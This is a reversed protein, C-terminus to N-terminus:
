MNRAEALAAALEADVAVESPAQPTNGAAINFVNAVATRLNSKLQEKQVADAVSSAEVIATYVTDSIEKADASSVGAKNKTAIIFASFNETPLASDNDRLTTNGPKVVVEVGDGNGYISAFQPNAKLDAFTTGTFNEVRVAANSKASAIIVTKSM